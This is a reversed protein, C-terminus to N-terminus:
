NENYVLPANTAQASKFVFTADEGMMDHTILPTDPPLIYMCKAEGRRNDIRWLATNLLPMPPPNHMVVLRTSIVHKGETNVMRSPRVGESKASMGSYGNKMTVLIFYRNVLHQHTNIVNDLSKHLENTTWLRYDGHTITTM